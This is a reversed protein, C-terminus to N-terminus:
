VHTGFARSTKDKSSLCADATVDIRSMRLSDLKFLLEGDSLTEKRDLIRILDSVVVVVLAVDVIVDEECATGPRPLCIIISFKHSRGISFPLSKFSDSERFIRLSSVSKPQLQLPVSEVSVLFDEHIYQAIKSKM